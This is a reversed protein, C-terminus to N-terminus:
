STRRAAANIDRNELVAKDSGTRAVNLMARGIRETTTAWRPAAAVIVPLLPWMITYLVRYSRTRSRVGHLPRVFGPRFAFKARFPMALIANETEGKVRAWMTKSSANTGVGSVFVFTMQPSAEVLARAAAVALDQTIRRYDAESMELEKGDDYRVTVSDQNAWGDKVRYIGTPM